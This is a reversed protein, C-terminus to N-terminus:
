PCLGHHFQSQLAHLELTWSVYGPKTPLSILQAQRNPTCKTPPPRKRLPMIPFHDPSMVHGSMAALQCMVACTHKQVDLSKCQCM